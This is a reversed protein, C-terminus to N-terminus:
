QGGAAQHRFELGRLVRKQGMWSPIFSIRRPYSFNHLDIGAYNQQVDVYEGVVFATLHNAYPTDMKWHFARTGDANDKTRILSGNSIVTLKKDVTATFETARLDNPADYGPFWYRNSEPEGMSWIERPKLPDNATPESFRLGKGNSGGLSNPDTQNICNTSYDIKVTLDEGAKYARDLTIALGDNKDGGDYEFELPTGNALTISNITLMGADLTIKNTSNFPSLTIATSGYAQKKRWDFRLDIAIRKVDITRSRIWNAPRPKKKEDSAEQAVSEPILPRASAISSFALCAMLAHRRLKRTDSKPNSM